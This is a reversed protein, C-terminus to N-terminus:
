PRTLISQLVRGFPSFCANSRVSTRGARHWPSRPGCEIWFEESEEDEKPAAAGGKGGGEAATEGGGQRPAAGRGRPDGGRPDGGALSGPPPRSTYESGPAPSIGGGEGRPDGRGV